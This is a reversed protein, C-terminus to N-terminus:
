FGQSMKTVRGDMLRLSLRHRNQTARGQMIAKSLPVAFAYECRQAMGQDHGTNVLGQTNAELRRLLELSGNVYVASGPSSYIRRRYVPEFPLVRAPRSGHRPPLLQSATVSVKEVISFDLYSLALNM